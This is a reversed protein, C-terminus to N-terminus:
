EGTPEPEAGEHLALTWRVSGGDLSVSEVTARVEGDGSRVPLERGQLARIDEDSMQLMDRPFAFAVRDSM